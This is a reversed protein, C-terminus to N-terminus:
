KLGVELEPSDFDDINVDGFVGDASAGRLRM